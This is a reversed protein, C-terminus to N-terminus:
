IDFVEDIILSEDLEQIETGDETLEAVAKKFASFGMRRFKNGCAENDSWVDENADNVNEYLREFALWEDMEHEGIVEFHDVIIQEAEDYATKKPLRKKYRRFFERQIPSAPRNDWQEKTVPDAMLKAVIHRGKTENMGSTSCKFFKLVEYDYHELHKFLGIMDSAQGKTATGTVSVGLENLYAEQRETIPDFFWKPVIKYEGSKKEQDAIEWREDIWDSNKDILKQAKSKSSNSVVNECNKAGFALRWVAGIIAFLIQLIGTVIVFLLKIFAFIFEVGADAKATRAM